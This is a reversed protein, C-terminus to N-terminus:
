EGGFRFMIGVQSELPLPLDETKDNVRVDVGLNIRNNLLWRADIQANRTEETRTPDQVTAVNVNVNEVPSVVARLRFKMQGEEFLPDIAVQDVMNVGLRRLVRTVSSDFRAQEFLSNTGLTAIQNALLSTSLGGSNASPGEGTLIMVVLDTQSLPKQGDPHTPPDAWLRQVISDKDDTRGSVQLFVSYDVASRDARHGTVKSVLEMEFAPAASAGDFNFSASNVLFRINGLRVEGSGSRAEITGLVRPSAATGSVRLRDVSLQSRACLTDLSVTGPAEVELDLFVPMSNRRTVVPEDSSRRLAREVIAQCGLERSIRADLISVHGDVFMGRVRGEQQACLDGSCLHIEGDVEADVFDLVPIGARTLFKSLQLQLDLSLDALEEPTKEWTAVGALSFTGEGKKGNFDIIRVRRDTFEFRMDLDEVKPPYPLVLLQGKRLEGNGRIRLDDMPGELQLNSMLRGGGEAFMKPMLLGLVKLDVDLDSQVAITKEQARLLGGLEVFGLNRGARDIARLRLQDLKIERVDAMLMSAPEDESKRAPSRVLDFRLDQAADVERVSFHLDDFRGKAKWARYWPQSMPTLPAPGELQVSGDVRSFINFRSRIEDSLFVSPDFARMWVFAAAPGSLTLPIQFRALLQNNQAELTARIQGSPDSLAVLRAFGLPRKMLTAKHLVVNAEGAWQKWPGSLSATGSLMGEMTEQPLAFLSLPVNELRLSAGDVKEQSIGHASVAIAGSSSAGAGGLGAALLTATSCTGERCKMGAKLSKIKGFRFDLDAFHLRLDTTWRLPEAIPGAIDIRAEEIRASLSDIVERSSAEPFFGRIARAVGSAEGDVTGVFRSPVGDAFGVQFAELRIAAEKKDGIEAHIDKGWVGDPDIGWEGAITAYDVGYLSVDRGQLRSQFRIPADKGSAYLRGSMDARGSTPHAAFFSPNDMLFYEAASLDVNRSELRFEIAGTKTNILGEEVVTRDSADANCSLATGAFDIRSDTLALHFEGACPPVPTRTSTHMSPVQLGEAVLPADVKVLLGPHSGIPARVVVRVDTGNARFEVADTPLNLGAMLEIFSINRADVRADVAVLDTGIVASGEGALTAGKPTQVELRSLKIRSHSTSFTGTATGSYLDYRWSGDHGGLDARYWSVRGDASFQRAAYSLATDVSVDGHAAIGAPELVKALSANGVLNLEARTDRIEKAPWLMGSARLSTSGPATLQVHDAKVFGEPTLVLRADLSDLEACAQEAGFCSWSNAVLLTVEGAGAARRFKFIPLRLRHDDREGLVADNFAFDLDAVNVSAPLSTRLQRLIEPLDVPSDDSSKTGFPLNGAADTQLRIRAGNLGVYSIIDSRGRLLALLSFGLDLEDVVAVEPCPKGDCPNLARLHVGSLRVPAATWAWRLSRVELELGQPHLFRENAFRVVRERLASLDLVVHLFLFLMAFAIGFM